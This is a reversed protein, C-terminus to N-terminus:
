AAKLAERMNAKTPALISSARLQSMRAEARKTWKRKTAASPKLDRLAKLLLVQIAEESPARSLLDAISPRTYIKYRSM